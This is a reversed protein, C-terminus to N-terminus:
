AICCDTKGKTEKNAVIKKTNTPAPISKDTILGSSGVLLDARTTAPNKNTTAIIPFIAAPHTNELSLGVFLNTTPKPIIGLPSTPKIKRPSPVLALNNVGERSAAIKNITIPVVNRAGTRKLITRFSLGGFSPM